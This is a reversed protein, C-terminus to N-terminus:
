SVGSFFGMMGKLSTAQVELTRAAAASEEVLTANQQTSDELLVVAKNIEDIGLSQEKTAGAIANMLDAVKGVEAIIGALSQGAKGVREAGSKVHVDSEVILRKIEKSAEGCRQALSRVEQAVVAFGKGSEGARAAEVAANLALLNTQFAIEDILVMIDSIRKSSGVIQEMSSIAENVEGEGLVANDNAAGAVAAADHANGANGRTTGSLEEMAAATQQISSAQQETRRALDDSGSAIQTAATSINEVAAFVNAVIEALRDAATNFDGKIQEYGAPMAATVRHALNGEALSKLGAALAEVVVRQKEAVEREQAAWDEAVQEDRRRAEERAADERAKAAEQAERLREMRIANEKFIAVARAMEGIEDRQATAPIAVQKDGSALLTMVHTISSLPRTISRAMLVAFVLGLLMTAGVTVTVMHIAAGLSDDSSSRLSEQVKMQLEAATTTAKSFAEASAPLTKHIMTDLDGGVDVLETLLSAYEIAAGAAEQAKARHAPNTIHAVLEDTQQNMEGLKQGANEASSWDGRLLLRYVQIRARLLTALTQNALAATQYDHEALATAAVESLLDGSRTGLPVMKQEVLEDRRDHLAVLKDFDVSYAKLQTNAQLVLARLQPDTAQRSLQDLATGLTALATKVRDKAENNGTTYALADRRMSLLDRQFQLVQVGVGATEAYTVFTSRAGDMGSICYGGLGLLLVLIV